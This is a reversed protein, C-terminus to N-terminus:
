PLNYIGYKRFYYGPFSIKKVDESPYVIQLNWFKIAAIKLLRDVTYYNACGILSFPKETNNMKSETEGQLKRIREKEKTKWNESWM